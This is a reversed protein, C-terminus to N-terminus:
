RCSCIKKRKYNEVKKVPGARINWADSGYEEELNEIAASKAEEKTKGNARQVTERLGKDTEFKLTVDWKVM